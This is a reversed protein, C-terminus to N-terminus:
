MKLDRTNHLGIHAHTVIILHVARRTHAVTTRESLVGVAATNRVGPPVTLAASWTRSRTEIKRMLLASSIMRPLRSAASLFLLQPDQKPSLEPGHKRFQLHLDAVLTSTLKRHAIVLTETHTTLRSLIDSFKPSDITIGHVSGSRAPTETTV